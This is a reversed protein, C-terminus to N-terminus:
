KHEAGVPKKHQPKVPKQDEIILTHKIVVGYMNMKYLLYIKKINRHPIKFTYIEGDAIVVTKRQAVMVDLKTPIKAARKATIIKGLGGAIFLAILLGLLMIKAAFMIGSGLNRRHTMQRVVSQGELLKRRSYGPLKLNYGIAGLMVSVAVISAAIKLLLLLM